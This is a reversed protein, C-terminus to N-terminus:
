WLLIQEMYHDSRILAGHIHSLNIAQTSISDPSGPGDYGIHYM